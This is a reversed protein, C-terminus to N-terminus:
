ILVHSVYMSYYLVAAAPTGPEPRCLLHALLASAPMRKKIRVHSVYIHTVHLIYETSKDESVAFGLCKSLIEMVVSHIPTATSKPLTYLM